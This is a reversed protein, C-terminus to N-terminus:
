LVVLMTAIAAVVLLVRYRTLTTKKPASTVWAWGILAWVALGMAVLILRAIM